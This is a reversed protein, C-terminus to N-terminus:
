SRCQETIERDFRQDDTLIEFFEDLYRSSKRQSSSSLRTENELIAYLEDRRALFLARAAPLGENHRCFGRYLRQRVNRIPLIEPVVAYSADVWGSSDFDYPTAYIPDLTDENGILKANHCCEGEVASLPSFDVNGIMYQFLMFISTELAPLDATRVEEVDVKDLGHRNGVLRDDEILFAIRPGDSRERESDEYVIAAPRVRFSLETLASYFRYALMELLVYQEYRRGRNCHTVLKITRNGDFITGEVREENFRLRIPPMSCIEQRSVGRKEVTLELAVDQGPITLTAPYPGDEEPARRLQRWPARIELMLPADQFRLEDFLPVPADPTEAVASATGLLGLCAAAVAATDLLIRRALSLM